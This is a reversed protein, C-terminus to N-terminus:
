FETESDDQFELEEGQGFGNAELDHELEDDDVDVLCILLVQVM